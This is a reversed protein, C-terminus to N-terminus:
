SPRRTPKGDSVLTTKVGTIMMEVKGRTIDDYDNLWKGKCSYKGHETLAKTAWTEDMNDTFGGEDDILDKLAEDWTAFGKEALETGDDGEIVAFYKIQKTM